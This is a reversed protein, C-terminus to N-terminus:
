STYEDNILNFLLLYINKKNNLKGKLKKGKLKRHDHSWGGCGRVSIKLKITAFSVSSQLKPTLFHPTIFLLFTLTLPLIQPFRSRNQCFHVFIFTWFRLIWGFTWSFYRQSQCARLGTKKNM